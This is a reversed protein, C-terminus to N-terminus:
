ERKLSPALSLSHNVGRGPRKVGPFFVRYGSYVLSFLVWTLDPRARFIEDGCPNLGQVTLSM